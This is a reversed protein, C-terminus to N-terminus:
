EQQPHVVKGSEDFYLISMTGDSKLTEQRQLYGADNYYYSASWDRVGKLYKTFSLIRGQEDYFAIYYATLSKAKKATIEDMPQYPLKYSVWSKYYYPGGTKKHSHECTMVKVTWFIILMFILTGMVFQKM